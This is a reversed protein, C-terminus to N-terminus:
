AHLLEITAAELNRHEDASGRDVPPESAARQEHVPLPRVLRTDEVALVCELAERRHIHKLVAIAARRENRLLEVVRPVVPEQVRVDTLVRRGSYRATLPAVDGGIM